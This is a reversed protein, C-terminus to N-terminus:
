VSYHCVIYIDEIVDAKLRNHSSSLKWLAGAINHIDTDKVELLWNGLGQPEVLNIIGHPLGDMFSPASQLDASGSTPPDGPFTLHLKLPGGSQYAEIPMGKKGNDIEFDYIDKFLLFLEIKIIKIQRGRFLFPFREQALNLELKHEEDGNPHLFRHWEGPFEHNASFLRALPANDVDEIV